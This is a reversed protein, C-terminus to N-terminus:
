LNGNEKRMFRSLTILEWDTDDYYRIVLVEPVKGGLPEFYLLASHEDFSTYRVLRGYKRESNLTDQFFIVPVSDIDKTHITEDM